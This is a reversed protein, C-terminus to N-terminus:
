TPFGHKDPGVGLHAFTSGAGIVAGVVVDSGPEDASRARGVCKFGVAGPEITIGEADDNGAGVGGGGGEDHEEVVKGKIGGM